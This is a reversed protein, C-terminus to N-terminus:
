LHAKRELDRMAATITPVDTHNEVMHSDGRLKRKKHLIFAPSHLCANEKANVNQPNCERHLTDTITQQVVKLDATKRM